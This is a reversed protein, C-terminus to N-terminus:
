LGNFSSPQTVFISSLSDAPTLRGSPPGVLSSGSSSTGLQCSELLRILERSTPGGSGQSMTLTPSINALLVNGANPGMFGPVGSPGVSTPTGIIGMSIPGASPYESLNPYGDFGPGVASAKLMCLATTLDWVQIAGDVHGTFIYRRPHAGIRNSGDHEHVSFSTIPVDDVSRIVCVRKGTSALRVFLQNSQPTLKQIFVLVDDREGYPGPDNAFRHVDVSPMSNRPQRRSAPSFEPQGAATLISTGSDQGSGSTAPIATTIRGTTSSRNKSPFQSPDTPGKSRAPSLRVTVEPDAEETGTGNRGNVMLSTRASINGPDEHLWSTRPLVVIDSNPYNVVDPIRNTLSLDMMPDSVLDQRGSSTEPSRSRSIQASQMHALYTVPPGTVSSESNSHEDHRGRGRPSRSQSGRRRWQTFRFSQPHSQRQHISSESGGGGFQSQLSTAVNSHARVVERSTPNRVACRRAAEHVSDVLQQPNTTDLATIHFSAIPTSGPQTSIVGRFRTVAWTRVHNFENCVSILHRESLVVRTVMSRHVTFTQLLQPSYGANEPYQVILCVRGSLTGYAIEMCNRTSYPPKPTLHVSLATIPDRQPDRYMETVLLDNDVIRLPFKQINISCIRGNACGLLLLESAAVGYSLIPVTSWVQWTNTMVHRVGVLGRRSLAVLHSGIFLLYDVARRNLDYCGVMESSWPEKSRALSGYHGPQGVEATPSFPALPSLYYTAPSASAIFVAGCSASSSQPYLSWLTISSGVAAAVLCSSGSPNSQGNQAANTVHSQGQSSSNPVPVNSSAPGGTSMPFAIQNSPVSLGGGPQQVVVGASAAPANPSSSTPYPQTTAVGTGISGTLFGVPNNARSTIALRDIAAPLQPSLWVLHWGIPDRLSFVGVRDRYVAAMLNQHCTILTVPISPPKRSDSERLVSEDPQQETSITPQNACASVCAKGGDLHLTRVSEKTRGHRLVVSPNSTSNEFNSPKSNDYSHSRESNCASGVPNDGSESSEVRVESSPNDIRCESSASSENKPVPTQTDWRTDSNAENARLDPAPMYGHFLLDGCRGGFNEECLSLKKVLSDLGYFLAENKLTAVDVGSLNLENTRLYNLIVNFMDPDRDIFYAGTEDRCSPLHGGLLITFFSNRNWLLTNRSTSFRRGGVNLNVIEYSRGINGVM